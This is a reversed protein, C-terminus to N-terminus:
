YGPDTYARGILYLLEEEDFEYLPLKFQGVMLHDDWLYITVAWRAVNEYGVEIRNSFVGESPEESVYYPSGREDILDCIAKLLRPM